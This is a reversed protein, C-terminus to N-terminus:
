PNKTHKNGLFIEPNIPQQLNPQNSHKHTQKEPKNITQNRPNIKQKRSKISIPNPQQIQIQPKSSIPKTAEQVQTSCSSYKRNTNLKIKEEKRKHEEPIPKLEQRRPLQTQTITIQTKTAPNTNKHHTLEQNTKKHNSNKTAPNTNKHHTQTRPQQTQNTFFLSFFVFLM